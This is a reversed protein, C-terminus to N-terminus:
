KSCLAVKGSAFAPGFEAWVDSGSALTPKTLDCPQGVLARLTTTTLVGAALTRVPRDPLTANVKVKHTYVTPRPVTPAAWCYDPPFTYGPPNQKLNAAILALCAKNRWDQFDWVDAPTELPRTFTAIEARAAAVPESAARIRDIASYLAPGPTDCYRTLCWTHIVPQYWVFGTPASAPATVPCWGMRGSVAPTAHVIYDTGTGKIVANSPLCQGFATIPWLLALAVIAPLNM